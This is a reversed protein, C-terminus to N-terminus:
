ARRRRRYASARQNGPQRADDGLVGLGVYGISEIVLLDGGLNPRAVAQEGAQATAEGMDDDKAAPVAHERRHQELIRAERDARDLADVDIRRDAATAPVSFLSAPSRKRAVM